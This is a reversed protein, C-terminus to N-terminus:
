QVTVCSIGNEVVVKINTGLNEVVLGNVGDSVYIKGTVDVAAVSDSLLSDVTDVLMGSEDYVAVESSGNVVYIFVDPLGEASTCVDTPSSLMTSGVLQTGGTGDLDYADLHYGASYDIVYIRASIFIDQPATMDGGNSILEDVFAGTTRDFRDVHSANDIVYIYESDAGFSTLVPSNTTDLVIRDIWSGQLDFRDIHTGEDLVYLHEGWVKLDSPAVMNTPDTITSEFVGALSFVDIEDGDLIYVSEGVSINSPSSLAADNASLGRPDLAAEFSVQPDDVTITLVEQPLWVNTTSNGITKNVSTLLIGELVMDVKTIDLVKSGTNQVRVELTNSDRQYFVDLIEIETELRDNMYEYKEDFSESVKDFADNLSSYLISFLILFAAFFIAMTASVSFGM